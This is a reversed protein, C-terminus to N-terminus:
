VHFPRSPKRARAALDCGGSSPCSGCGKKGHAARIIQNGIFVAAAAVLVFVILEQM